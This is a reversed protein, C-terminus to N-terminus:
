IPRVTVLLRCMAHRILDSPYPLEHPTQDVEISDVYGSPTEIDTGVLLGLLSNLLDMQVTGSSYVDLGIRDVRDVFGQTGPDQTIVVEVEDGDQIPRGYDDASQRYAALATVTRGGALHQTGDIIDWIAARTDPFILVDSM